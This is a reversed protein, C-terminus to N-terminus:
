KPGLDLRKQQRPCLAGAARLHEHSGRTMIIPEIAPAQQGLYLLKWLDPPKIYVVFLLARRLLVGM